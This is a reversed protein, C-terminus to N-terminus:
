SPSPARSASDSPSGDNGGMCQAAYGRMKLRSLPSAEPARIASWLRGTAKEDRCGIALAVVAFQENPSLHLWRGPSVLPGYLESMGKASQTFHLLYARSTADLSSENRAALTDLYYDVARVWPRSDPELQWPQLNKVLWKALDHQESTGRSLVVALELHVAVLERQELRNTQLLREYTEIAMADNGLAAAVLAFEWLTSPDFSWTEGKPALLGFAEPWRGERLAVRGKLWRVEDVFGLEAEIETLITKTQDTRRLL